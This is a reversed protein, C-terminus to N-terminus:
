PRHSEPCLEYVTRKLVFKEIEMKTLIEKLRKKKESAGRGRPGQDRSKLKMIM